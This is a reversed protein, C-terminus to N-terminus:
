WPLSDLTVGTVGAMPELFCRPVVFRDSIPIISLIDLSSISSLTSAAGRNDRHTLVPTNVQAQFIHMSTKEWNTKLSFLSIFNTRETSSGPLIEQIPSLMFSSGNAKEYCFDQNHTFQSPTKTKRFRLGGQSPTKTKTFRLGGTYISKIDVFCQLLTVSCM